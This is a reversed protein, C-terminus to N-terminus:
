EPYKQRFYIRYILGFMTKGILYVNKWKLINSKGYERAKMLMPVEVYSINKRRVLQVLIEAMYAPGDTTMEATKLVSRRFFCPGNFYKINLGFIVNIMTRFTVSLFRRYMSRVAPNIIYPIIVDAKDIHRFIEAVTEPHTENDGPIFGVYDKSALLSLTRVNYGLGLPKPNHFVRIRPDAAALEDIIKGTGDSSGDNIALIEFDPFSQKELTDIATKIVNGINGAENLGPIIVSVSSKQHNM